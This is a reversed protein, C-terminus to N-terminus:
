LSKQQKTVFDLRLNRQVPVNFGANETAGMSDGRWQPGEGHRVVTPLPTALIQRSSPCLVVSLDCVCFLVRFIAVSHQLLIWYVRKKKM